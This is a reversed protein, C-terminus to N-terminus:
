MGKFLFMRSGKRNPKWTVVPRNNADVLCESDKMFGMIHFKAEEEAKELEKMAEKIESLASIQEAIYTDYEVTNEPNSKKYKTKIDSLNIAEPEINNQVCDWFKTAHELIISELDLNREYIFERYQNGGILVSLFAIDANKISCYTAIQVLYEMPIADTGEDGWVHRMFASSCKGEWVANLSKIFGDLNGRIFSFKPHHVANCDDVIVNNNKEFHSKVVPELMKGWYQQETEEEVNTDILGKKELFLMYPTKYSSLGMIIPMDSGGLFGQREKIEESTLM